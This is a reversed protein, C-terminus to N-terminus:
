VKTKLYKYMKNMLPTDVGRKLGEDVIYGSLSELEVEKKNQFDLQMSTSADSPVKSATDLAKPVEDFIEIRKAHAVKAIEDLLTKIMEFNEEYVRSISKNFFSTATAFASIFIYKKWIATEINDPVKYRLKSDEFIQAVIQTSEDDGGFVAAFVKGKKRIAGAEEIHSLIYICGELVKSYSIKTLLKGNTVGNSFSLLITKENIHSRIQKYSNEIDYSKVCFFVVDFYGEFFGDLDELARVDIKQNWCDDDEIVKIGHTQIASLHEGRAFGIVDLGVKAFNAALYGGVGGLGVVAIRM